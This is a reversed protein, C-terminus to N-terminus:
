GHEDKCLPMSKHHHCFHMEAQLSRQDLKCTGRIVQLSFHHEKCIYPLLVKYMHNQASGQAVDADYAVALPVRTDM